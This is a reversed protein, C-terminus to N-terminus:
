QLRMSSLNCLLCLVDLAADDEGLLLRKSGMTDTYFPSDLRPHHKSEDSDNLPKVKNAEWNEVKKEEVIAIEEKALVRTQTRRV